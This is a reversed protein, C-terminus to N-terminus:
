FLVPCRPRNANTDPPFKKHCVSDFAIVSHRAANIFDNKDAIEPRIRLNTIHVVPTRDTVKANRRAFAPAIPVAALAPFPRLPMADDNEIFTKALDGLLIQLFARFNIEFPLKLGALILLVADGFIRGLNHQLAEVGRQGHQITGAAPLATALAAASLAAATIAVRRGTATIAAAVTARGAAAKATIKVVINRESGAEAQM